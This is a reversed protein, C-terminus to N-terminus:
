KERAKTKPPPWKKTILETITQVSLDPKAENECNIWLGPPISRYLFYATLAIHDPTPNDTKNIPPTELTARLDTQFKQISQLTFDNLLSIRDATILFAAYSQIKRKGKEPPIKASRDIHLIALKSLDTTWKYDPKDLQNLATLQKKKDAAQEYKQQKALDSMELDLANISKKVQGSAAAVANQIQTLYQNKDILALCPAPCTQMQHYPCTKAKKPSDVLDPKQCLQFATRIHTIFRAASKRTPFPAFTKQNAAFSPRNTLTFNPWKASQDIKVFSQNPFSIADHWSNPFITRAIKYHTLTSNFDNYCCKYYIKRVIRTIDTRKTNQLPEPPFIRNKATRRINAAILLQIPSNHKDCFLLVGRCTPLPNPEATLGDATQQTPEICLCGQFLEQFM